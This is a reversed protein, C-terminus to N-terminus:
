AKAPASLSRGTVASLAYSDDQRLVLDYHSNSFRLRVARREDAGRPNYVIPKANGPRFVEIVLSHEDALALLSEEDGWTGIQALARLYRLGETQPQLRELRLLLGKAREVRPDHTARAPPPGGGCDGIVTRAWRRPFSEEEDETAGEM